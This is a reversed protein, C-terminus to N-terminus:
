FNNNKINSIYEQVDGVVTDDFAKCFILTSEYNLKTDSVKKVISNDDDYLPINMPISANPIRKRFTVFIDGFKRMLNNFVVSCDTFSEHVFTYFEKEEMRQLLNQAHLMLKSEIDSARILDLITDDLKLYAQCNKQIETIHFQDVKLGAASALLCIDLLQKEVGAVEALQYVNVHYSARNKFMNEILHFDEAHYAIHSIGDDYTVVRATNFFDEFPEIKRGVHFSDRLLYDCKDVDINCFKNSVIETLYMESPKLLRHWAKCDGTILSSILEVAYEHVKQDDDLSIHAFDIMHRIMQVSQDEHTWNKDSGEHVCNEWLHSFPGHGLDHM